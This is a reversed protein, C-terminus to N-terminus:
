GEVADYPWRGPQQRAEAKTGVFDQASDIVYLEGSRSDTFTGWGQTGGFDEQTDREMGAYGSLRGVSAVQEALYAGMLGEQRCVGFGRTPYEGLSVVRDGSFQRSFEETKQGDYPMVRRVFDKIQTLTEVTSPAPAGVVRQWISRKSHEYLFGGAIAKLRPDAVDDVVIAERQSGGLYVGGNIRQSQRGIIHKDEFYGYPAWMDPQRYRAQDSIRDVGM